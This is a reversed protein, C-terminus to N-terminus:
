AAGGFLDLQEMDAGPDPKVPSAKGKRGPKSVTTHDRIGARADSMSLMSKRLSDYEGYSGDALMQCFADVVPIGEPTVMSLIGVVNEMVFTRPMIEIVLRAFEFVLSNRPDMVDKKGASSFGQCPPGGTVVAVDGRELELADLIMEGTLNRIDYLFFHECGPHDDPQGAIWGSGAVAPGDTIFETSDLRFRKELLADCKEAREPSDFHIKVGPRALNAMYTLGAVDWYESAAAVHFGAQHFGLGMGGAGCFLDVAVPLEYRRKVRRPMYLGLPSREWDEGSERVAPQRYKTLM